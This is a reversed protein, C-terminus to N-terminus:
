ALQWTHLLTSLLRPLQCILLQYTFKSVDIEPYCLCELKINQIHCSYIHLRKM